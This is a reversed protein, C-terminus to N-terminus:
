SSELLHKLRQRLDVAADRQDLLSVSQREIERRLNTIQRELEAIHAILQDRYFPQAVAKPLWNVWTEEVFRPPMGSFSPDAELAHDRHTLQRDLLRRSDEPQCHLWGLVPHPRALM